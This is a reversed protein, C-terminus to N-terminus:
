KLGIWEKSIQNLNYNLNQPRIGIPQAPVGGVITYPEVDKTVVAGAAVAAGNGIKVGPLVVARAGIFVREGIEVPGGRSKFESDSLDHELTLIVSYISVSVNEGIRLPFRGDLVVGRNIKTGRALTIRSPGHIICDRDIFVDAEINMRFVIRYILIRLYNTPLHSTIILFYNRLEFVATRFDWILSLVKKPIRKSDSEQFFQNKELRTKTM